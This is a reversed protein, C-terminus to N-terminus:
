TSILDDTLAGEAIAMIRRLRVVATKVEGRAQELPKGMQRTIEAAIREGGREFADCFRECLAVREPVSSRAWGRQARSARAVVGEIEGPALFRREAVIEGSFPDDIRFSKAM